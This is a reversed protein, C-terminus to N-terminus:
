HIYEAADSRRHYGDLVHFTRVRHLALKSFQILPLFIVRKGQQKAYQKFKEAPAKSAVYVIVPKVAYDIAARLLTETKTSSDAYDPDTWVDYMRRPPYSLLFGGYTCRGIGPGIIDDQFNSAFFAMDSEQEHEGIWTLKWPFKEKEDTDEDFIVVLSGVGGQPRGSTKIYIKKEIFHRITERVDIGDELSSTFVASHTNEEKANGLAKKQLYRGFTEVISDEPPYSCLTFPNLPSFQIPTKEKKRRQLFSSKKSSQKRHFWISKSNGWVEQITFPLEELEDINTRLPYETAAKWVEYAYNHDICSKCATILQFLDPLLKDRIAAYKRLYRMILSLGYNPFSTRTDQEYPAIAKKLLNYILKQRDLNQDTYHRRWYEYHTSIWGYEAMVTLASEETPTALQIQTYKVHDITPFSDAEILQAINKSHSMGVVVLIREYSFSLEKLRKAMYLERAIDRDNKIFPYHELEQVYKKLGIRQIAYPDPIADEHLPYSSVNLDICFTPINAEHGCRMAEFVPDCPEALLIKKEQDSDETIICTLDPLRAAAVLCEDQLTEPLEVAICDPQLTLFAKRVAQACEMTYHLIPVFYFPPKKIFPQM